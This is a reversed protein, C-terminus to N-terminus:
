EELCKSFQKIMKKSTESLHEFIYCIQLSRDYEKPITKKMADFFGNLLDAQVENNSCGIDFGILKAMKEISTKIM